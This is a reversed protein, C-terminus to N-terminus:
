REFEGSFLETRTNFLGDTAMKRKNLRQKQRESRFEGSSPEMPPLVVHLTVFSPLMSPSRCKSPTYDEDVTAWNLSSIVSNVLEEDFNLQSVIPYAPPSEVDCM